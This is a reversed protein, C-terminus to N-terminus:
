RTQLPLELFLLMSQGVAVIARVGVGVVGLRARRTQKRRRGVAVVLGRAALDEAVVAVLREGDVMNRSQEQDEHGVRAVRVMTRWHHRRYLKM